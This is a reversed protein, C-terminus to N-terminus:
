DRQNGPQFVQPVGNLFGKITAPRLSNGVHKIRKHPFRKAVHEEADSNL